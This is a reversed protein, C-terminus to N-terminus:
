AKLRGDPSTDGDSTRIVSLGVVDSELSDTESIQRGTFLSEKSLTDAAFLEYINVRTPKRRERSNQHMFDVDVDKSKDQIGAHKSTIVRSLM